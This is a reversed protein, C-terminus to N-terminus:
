PISWSSFFPTSNSITAYAKLALPPVHCARTGFSAHLLPPLVPSSFWKTPLLAKQAPLPCLNLRLPLLLFLLSNHCCAGVTKISPCLTLLFLFCFCQRNTNRKLDVSFFGTCTPGRLETFLLHLGGPSGWIWSLSM